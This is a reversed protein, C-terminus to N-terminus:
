QLAARWQEPLPTPEGDTVHVLTAEARAAVADGVRVEHETTVSSRGLAPVRTTVVVEPDDPTVRREFDFSLSAVVVPPDAGPADLVDRLFDVRAEEVYTAFVANNV